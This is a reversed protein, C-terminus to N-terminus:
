VAEHANVARSSFTSRLEDVVSLDTKFFYAHSTSRDSVPAPDLRVSEECAINPFMRAISSLGYYPLM